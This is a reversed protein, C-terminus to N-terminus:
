PNNNGLKGDEPRGQTAAKQQGQILEILAQSQQIHLATFARYREAYGLGVYGVSIFAFIAAVILVDLAVRRFRSM